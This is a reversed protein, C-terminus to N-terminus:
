FLRLFSIGYVIGDFQSTHDWSLGPLMIWNPNQFHIKYEVGLKTLLLNENRELEVGVGGILILGKYVRYFVIPQVLLASERHYKTIKNESGKGEVIHYGIEWEATIGLGLRSNMERVYELGLTPIQINSQYIMTNGVFFGFANQREHVVAESQSVHHDQAQAAVSSALMIIIILFRKM